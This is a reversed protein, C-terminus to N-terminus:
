GTEMPMSSKVTEGVLLEPFPGLFGLPVTSCYPELTNPSPCPAATPLVGMIKSGDVSSMILSGVAAYDADSQANAWQSQVQDWSGAETNWFGAIQSYNVNSNPNHTYPNANGAGWFADSKTPGFFAVSQADTAAMFPNTDGWFPRINGWFPRINGYFPRINGYFPRINGYFPRINGYFPRINGYFPTVSGGGAALAQGAGALAALSVTALAVLRFGGKASKFIM